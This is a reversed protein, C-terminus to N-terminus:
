VVSYFEMPMADQANVSVHGKLEITLQGKSNKSSQLELGKESLANKLCVAVLGGGATDGVWWIDSFDSESLTRRPVIRNGSVDAAGLALRIDEATMGLSVFKMGCNWGELKKLEMMGIPCNDVDDGMDSYKPVCTVTIGGRTACIIQEDTPEAASAPDFSRLLVGADLQMNEFTDMPIKTFKPM